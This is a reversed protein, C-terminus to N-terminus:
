ATPQNSISQPTPRRGHSRRRSTALGALGLGFLALTGPEPVTGGDDLVVRNNEVNLGLITATYGDPLNFVPGDLPFYLTDMADVAGSADGYNEVQGLLSLRIDVPVGVPVSFLPTVSPGNLLVTGPVQGLTGEYTFTRGGANARDEYKGYYTGVQGFSAASMTLDIRAARTSGGNVVGTPFGAEFHLNLSTQVLGSPGSIIFQTEVQSFAIFSTASGQWASVGDASVGLGFESAIASANGWFPSLGCSAQSTSSFQPSTAGVNSQSTCGGVNATYIAATTTGASLCMVLFLILRQAIAGIFGGCNRPGQQIATREPQTLIAPRMLVRGATATAVAALLVASAPKLLKRTRM